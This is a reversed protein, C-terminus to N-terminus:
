ISCVPVKRLLEGTPHNIQMRQQLKAFSTVGRDFMVIEGDAIFRDTRQFRLAQTLEPYKENLRKRNRSLLRLSSGDAFALCREEDLKAEFLWGERSFCEDTLTALM